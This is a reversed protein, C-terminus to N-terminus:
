GDILQLEPNFTSRKKVPMKIGGALSKELISALHEFPINHGGLNATGDSPSKKFANLPVRANLDINEAFAPLASVAESLVLLSLSNILKM